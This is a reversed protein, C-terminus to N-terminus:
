PVVGVGQLVAPQSGQAAFWRGLLGAASRAESTDDTSVAPKATLSIPQAGPVLGGEQLALRKHQIAFLVGERAIPRLREIKLPLEALLTNHEAVWGAFATNARGPLQVRTPRHLVLPLAVFALALSFPAQRVRYYEGVTRCLLEAYFAPNFNAAEEQPRESWNLNWRSTSNTM